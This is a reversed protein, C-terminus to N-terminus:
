SSSAAQKAQIHKLMPECYGGGGKEPAYCLAPLPGHPTSRASEDHPASCAHLVQGASAIRQYLRPGDYGIRKRPHSFTNKRAESALSGM